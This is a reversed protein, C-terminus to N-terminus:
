DIIKNELLKNFCLNLRSNLTIPRFKDVKKTNSKKPIMILLSQHWELPTLGKDLISQFITNLM